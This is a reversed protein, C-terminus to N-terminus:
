GGHEPAMWQVALLDIVQRFRARADQGVLPSTLVGAVAMLTEDSPGLALVSRPWHGASSLLADTREPELSLARAIALVQDHGSPGRDGSELRNIIAANITANRDLKKWSRPVLIKREMQQM